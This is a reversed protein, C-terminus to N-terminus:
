QVDERKGARQLKESLNGNVLSKGNQLPIRVKIEFRVEGQQEKINAWFSGGHSMARYKMIRLGNGGFLPQVTELDVVASSKPHVGNNVITIALVEGEYDMEIGIVDPIAHKVANHLAESIIFYIDNATREDCTVIKGTWHITVPISCYSETRAALKEVATIIGFDGEQVPYLEGIIQYLSNKADVAAAKIMNLKEQENPSCSFSSSFGAVLLELAHISQGMGDHLDRGLKKREEDASRITELNTVLESTEQLELTRRAVKEELGNNMRALSETLIEVERFAGTFRLSLTLAQFFVFVIMGLEIFTGTTVFFSSYLNDNITAAAMILTGVITFLAGQRKHIIALVNVIVLYGIVVASFIYFTFIIHTFILPPTILVVLSFLGTIGLIVPAIPAIFEDRFLSRYLYSAVPIALFFTLYESRVLLSFPIGPFLRVITYETPFLARISLLFCFIALFAFHTDRRRMLYLAAHYFAIMMLSSFLMISRIEAQWHWSELTDLSGFWIQRWPGGVRYNFNSVQLQLRVTTAGEDIAILAVSPKYQPVEEEPSPGSIGASIVLENGAYLQFTTGASLTHVAPNEPPEDLLVTLRYTAYGTGALSDGNVMTTDWTSPVQSYCPISSEGHADPELLKLWFFEWEGNLPVPGSSSFDWGRLDLVGDIAMPYNKATNSKKNLSLLSSFMILILLIFMAIIGSIPLYIKNIDKMRYNEGDFLM